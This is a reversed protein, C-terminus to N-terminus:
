LGRFQLLQSFHDAASVVAAKARIVGIDEVMSEEDSWLMVWSRWKPVAASVWVMNEM